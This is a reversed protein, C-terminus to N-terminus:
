HMAEDTKEPQWYVSYVTEPEFGFKEALYRSTENQADWHVTIGREMCDQLMRAACAGALGKGRHEEMTYMDLEAEGDLSLFSSVSSVIEGDRYIVAGSGEKQFAAYSDYNEGHSFPHRDFAAKDMMRLQYEKPLDANEPIRFRCAPKMMYRIYRRAHPYHKRIYDKWSETLCVWPRALYETELAAASEQDPEGDLYVFLADTISGKGYERRRGFIGRQAARYLLLESRNLCSETSESSFDGKETINAKM